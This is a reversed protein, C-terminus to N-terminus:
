VEFRITKLVMPWMIRSASIAPGQEASMAYAFAHMKLHHCLRAPCRAVQPARIAKIRFLFVQVTVRAWKPHGRVHKFAENAL